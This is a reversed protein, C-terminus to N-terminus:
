ILSPITNLLTQYQTLYRTGLGMVYKKQRETLGYVYVELRREPPPTKGGDGERRDGRAGEGCYSVV